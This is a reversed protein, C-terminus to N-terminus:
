PGGDAGGQREQWWAQTRAVDRVVEEETADTRPRVTGDTLAAIAEAAARREGPNAPERFLGILAPVSEERGASALALAIADRGPGPGKLRAVLLDGSTRALDLLGAQGKLVRAPEPRAIRWLNLDLRDAPSLGSALGNEDLVHRWRPDREDPIRRAHEALLARGAADLGTLRAEAEKAAGPDASLLRGVEAAVAQQASPASAPPVDIAMRRGPSACAALVLSLPVAARVVRM